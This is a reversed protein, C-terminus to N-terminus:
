LFRLDKIFLKVLVYETTYFHFADKKLVTKLM